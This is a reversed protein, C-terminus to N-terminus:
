LVRWIYECNYNNDNTIKSSVDYMVLKTVVTNEAKLRLFYVTRILSVIM